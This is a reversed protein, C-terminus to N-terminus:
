IEEKMVMSTVMPRMAMDIMRSEINLGNREISQLRDMRRVERGIREEFRQTAWWTIGAGTGLLIALCAHALAM